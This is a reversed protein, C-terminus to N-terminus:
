GFIMTPIVISGDVIKKGSHRIRPPFSGRSANRSRHLRATSDSNVLTLNERIGEAAFHSLGFCLKYYLGLLWRPHYWRMREVGENGLWEPLCRRPTPLHIYQIGPRALDVENDASIVLDYDGQMHQCCRM